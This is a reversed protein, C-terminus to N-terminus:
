KIISMDSEIRISGGFSKNFYSIFENLGETKVTNKTSESVSDSKVLDGYQDFVKVSFKFEIEIDYSPSEANTNPTASFKYSFVAPLSKSYKDIDVIQSTTTVPISIQSGDMKTAELTIDAIKCFDSNVNYEATVVAYGFVKESNDDKSGCSSISTISLLTAAAVIFFRKM